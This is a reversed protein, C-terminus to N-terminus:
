SFQNEEVWKRFIKIIENLKDPDGMGNYINEHVYCIIWDIENNNVKYEKFQRGEMATDTLDIKVIWGPNDLTDIKIGFIHEWEGNCNSKYWKILWDLM